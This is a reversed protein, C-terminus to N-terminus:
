NDYPWTLLKPEPKPLSELLVNVAHLERKVKSREFLLFEIRACLRLRFDKLFVMDAPTLM